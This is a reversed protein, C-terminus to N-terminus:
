VTLAVRCKESMESIVFTCVSRIDSVSVLLSHMHLVLQMVRCMESLRYFVIRCKNSYELVRCKDSLNAFLVSCKYSLNNM